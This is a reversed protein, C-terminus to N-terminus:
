SAAFYDYIARALSAAFADRNEPKLFWDYECINTLYGCEIIISPMSSVHCVIYDGFAANKYPRRAYRSVGAAVTEADMGLDILINAVHCPHVIYPEGSLRLQGEHKEKAFAFASLVLERQPGTFVREIKERLENEDITIKTMDFM